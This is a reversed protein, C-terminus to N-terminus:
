TKIGCKAGLDPKACTEEESEEGARKWAVVQKRISEFAVKELQRIRERSVGHDEGIEALTRSQGDHLGLRSRVIDQQRSPIGLIAEEVVKWTARLREGRPRDILPNECGLDLLRAAGGVGETGLREGLPRRRYVEVVRRADIGEVSDLVESITAEKGVQRAAGVAARIKMRQETLYGPDRLGGVWSASAQSKRARIWNLAYTSVRGRDLEFRDIADAVGITGYLLNERSSFAPITNLWVALKLNRLVLQLRAEEMADFQRRFRGSLGPAERWIFRLFLARHLRKVEVRQLLDLVRWLPVLAAGSLGSLDTPPTDKIARAEDTGTWRGWAEQGAATALVDLFLRAEGVVLVQLQDSEADAGLPEAGPVMAELPTIAEVRGVKDSSSDGFGRLEDLEVDFTGM